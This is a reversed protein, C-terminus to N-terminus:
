PERTPTCCQQRCQAQCPAMKTEEVIIQCRAFNVFVQELTTQSVSYDELDYEEKAREMTGFIKAWSMSQGIHYYLLTEHHDKLESDPFTNRVFEILRSIKENINVVENRGPTRVKVILTYGKGFKDKLHQTSGLCKFKGNVMIAMRTCLAECEEMSCIHVM